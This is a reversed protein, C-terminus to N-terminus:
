LYEKLKYIRSRVRLKMEKKILLACNSFLIYVATFDIDQSKHFLNFSIILRNFHFIINTHNRTQPKQM